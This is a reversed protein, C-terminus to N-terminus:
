QVNLVFKLYLILVLVNTYSTSYGGLTSLNLLIIEEQYKDKIEM